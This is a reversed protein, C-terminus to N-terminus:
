GGGGSSGTGVFTQNFTAGGGNQAALVRNEAQLVANTVRLASKLFSGLGSSSKRRQV